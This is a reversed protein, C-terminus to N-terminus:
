TFLYTNIGNPISVCKCIRIHILKELLFLKLVFTNHVYNYTAVHVYLEGLKFTVIYTYVYM